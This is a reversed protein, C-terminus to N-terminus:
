LGPSASRSFNTLNGLCSTIEAVAQVWVLSTFSLLFSHTPCSVCVFFVWSCCFGSAEGRFVPRQDECCPSSIFVSFINFPSCDFIKAQKKNPFCVKELAGNFFHCLNLLKQCIKVLRSFNFYTAVVDCLLDVSFNFRVVAMLMILCTRNWNLQQHSSNERSDQILHYSTDFLHLHFIQYSVATFLIM